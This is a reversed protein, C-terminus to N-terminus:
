TGAITCVELYYTNSARRSGVEHVASFVTSYYASRITRVKTIVVKTSLLFSQM